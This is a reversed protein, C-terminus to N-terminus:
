LPSAHWEGTDALLRLQLKYGQLVTPDQLILSPLRNQVAHLCSSSSRLRGKSNLMVAMIVQVKNYRYSRLYESRNSHLTSDEPIHRRVTRQLHVSTESSCEAEM